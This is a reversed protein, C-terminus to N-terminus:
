ANYCDAEIRVQQGLIRHPWYNLITIQLLNYKPDRATLQTGVIFEKILILIFFWIIMLFCIALIYLSAFINDDLFEWLGFSDCNNWLIM